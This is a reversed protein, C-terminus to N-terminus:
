NSNTRSATPDSGVVYSAIAFTLTARGRVGDSKGWRNITEEVTKQDSGNVWGTWLIQFQLSPERGFSLVWDLEVGLIHLLLETWIPCVMGVSLGPGTTMHFFNPLICSKEEINVVSPQKYFVVLWCTMRKFCTQSRRYINPGKAGKELYHLNLTLFNKTPSDTVTPPSFFGM